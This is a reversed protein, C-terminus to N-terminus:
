QFRKKLEDITVSLISEIENVYEAPESIRNERLGTELENCVSSLHIAGINGSAGKISHVVSEVTSLDSTKNSSKLDSILGPMIEIFETVIGTFDDGLLEYLSTVAEDDLINKATNMDM